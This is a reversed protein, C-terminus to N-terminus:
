KVIEDPCPGIQGAARFAECSPWAWAIERSPAQVTVKSESTQLVKGAPLPKSVIGYLLLGTALVLMALTPALVM